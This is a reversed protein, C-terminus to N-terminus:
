RDLYGNVNYEVCDDCMSAELMVKQKTLGTCATRAGGLKSGCCDCPRWSFEEREEDPYYAVVDRRRLFEDVKATFADYEEDTM